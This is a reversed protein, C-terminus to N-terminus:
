VGMSSLANLVRRLVGTFSPHDTEFRTIVEDVTSALAESSAAEQPEDVHVEIEGVLRHLRLREEEEMPLQDIENLLRSLDQFIQERDL